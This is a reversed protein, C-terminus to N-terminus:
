HKRVTEKVEPLLVADILWRWYPLSAFPTLRRVTSVDGETMGPATGSVAGRANAVGLGAVSIVDSALEYTPGLFGGVVSRTAYRSAPARQSASPFLASAGAYLGPVGLKEMANNVEFGLAFIGSRDIGEMAWTGPNDSVERGAELQKLAYIFAGITAMGVIGGVLRSKDEQLGRLLVRQNSAISFSKFQLIARGVPTSAFLPVDGVGKTVIISDVDKNIAARYARRSAASIAEDGWAETNAVKVGDIAEGHVRYLRGIDEARQGGIGLYGM